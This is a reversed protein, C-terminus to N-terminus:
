MGGIVAASPRGFGNEMEGLTSRGDLLTPALLRHMGYGAFLGVPMGVPVLIHAYLDPLAYKNAAPLVLDYLEPSWCLEILSPWLMFSSAATLGGVLVGGFPLLLNERSQNSSFLDAGLNATTNSTNTNATNSATNSNKMNEATSGGATNGGSSASQQGAPDAWQVNAKMKNRKDEWFSSAFLKAFPQVAPPFDSVPVAGSM